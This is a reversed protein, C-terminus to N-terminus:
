LKKQQKLSSRVNEGLNNNLEGLRVTKSHKKLIKNSMEIYIKFPWLKPILNLYLLYCVDKLRKYCIFTIQLELCFFFFVNFFIQLKKGLRRFELIRTVITSYIFTTNM